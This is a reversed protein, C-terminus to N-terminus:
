NGAGVIVNLKLELPDSVRKQDRHTGPVCAPFCEYMYFLFYLFRFSGPWGFVEQLRCTKISSEKTSKIRFESSSWYILLVVYFCRVIYTFWSTCFFAM